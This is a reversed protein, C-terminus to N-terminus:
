TLFSFGSKAASLVGLFVPMWQIVQLSNVAYAGCETPAAGGRRIEETAMPFGTPPIPLAPRSKAGTPAAGGRRIEETAM